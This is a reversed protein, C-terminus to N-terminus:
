VHRNAMAQKGPATTRPKRKYHHPCGRTRIRNYYCITIILLLLLLGCSGALPGLIIPNCLMSPNREGQKNQSTCVCAKTSTSPIPKTNTTPPAETAVQGVLRTVEGFFLKNQTLSACSYIGSDRIKNFSKLLLIDQSIKEEAFISKYSSSQQKIFGNSFSAIYEMAKNDVVRFWIVLSGRSSPVCKIEVPTQEKTVLAGTSAGRGLQKVKKEVIDFPIHLQTVSFEHVMSTQLM